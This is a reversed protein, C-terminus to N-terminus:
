QGCIYTVVNRSFDDQVLDISARSSSEGEFRWALKIPTDRYFQFNRTTWKIANVPAAAYMVISTFLLIVLLAM